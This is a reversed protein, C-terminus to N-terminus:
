ETGEGGSPNSQSMSRRDKKLRCPAEIESSAERAAGTDAEVVMDEAEEEEEVMGEGAEAMVEEEGGTAEEPDKKEEKM